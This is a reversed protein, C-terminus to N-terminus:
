KISSSILVIMPISVEENKVEKIITTRTKRKRKRKQIIRKIPWTIKKKIPLHWKQMELRIQELEQEMEGIKQEFEMKRAREKEEKRKKM